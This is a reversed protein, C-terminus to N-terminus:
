SRKSTLQPKPRMVLYLLAVPVAIDLAAISALLDLRVGSALVATGVFLQFNQAGAFLNMSAMGLTVMTFPIAAYLAVNEKLRFLLVYSLTVTPLYYAAAGLMGMPWGLPNLETALGTVNISYFTTALDFTWFALAVGQSAFLLNRWNITSNLLIPDEGSLKLVVIGTVPVLMILLYALGLWGDGGRLLAIINSVWVVGIAILYGQALSKLAGVNKKAGWLRAIL